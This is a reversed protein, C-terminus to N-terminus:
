RSDERVWFRYEDMTPIPSRATKVGELSVQYYMARQRNLQELMTQREKSITRAIWKQYYSYAASSVVPFFDPFKEFVVKHLFQKKLAYASCEDLAIYTWQSMRSNVVYHDCITQVGRQTRVMQYPEDTISCFPKSFGIGIFGELIFYM